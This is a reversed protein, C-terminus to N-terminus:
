LTSMVRSSSLTPSDQAPRFSSKWLWVLKQVGLLEQALHTPTPCIGDFAFNAYRLCRAVQPLMRPTWLECVCVLDIGGFYQVHVHRVQRFIMQHFCCSNRIGIKEPFLAILRPMTTDLPEVFPGSEQQFGNM